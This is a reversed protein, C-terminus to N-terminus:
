DSATRDMPDGGISAIQRPMATAAEMALGASHRLVADAQATYGPGTAAHLVLGGYLSFAARGRKVGQLVALRAERGARPWLPLLRASGCGAQALGALGDPVAGVGLILTLTGRDRLPAALAAIWDIVTGPASRKATERASSPSPSGGAAHWPPNAFAHDFRASAQWGLLDAAMIEVHDARGNARMNRRAVEAMGPDVEIGIGRVGPVRAALCLLGAGSGTGGELVTEGPRAPVCAALLVPEIGTRHGRVPQEHAVRGGLLTGFDTATM